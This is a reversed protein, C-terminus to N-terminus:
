RTGEEYEDADAVIQARVASLYPAAAPGFQHTNIRTAADRLAHASQFPAAASLAAEAIRDCETGNIGPYHLLADYIAGAAAEAARPDITTM